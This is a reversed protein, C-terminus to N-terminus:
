GDNDEKIAKKPIVTKVQVTKYGSIRSAMYRAFGDGDCLAYVCSGSGTMNVGCPSFELLKAYAAAVDGCLVRAAPFLSNSLNSGLKQRDGSILSATAQATSPRIRVNLSDYKSYCEATSVGSKPFLLLFDLRDSCAVPKVECGRGSIVAYGGTLMYGTDSGCSDAIGKLAAFDDINYVAALANLVAAADASSGGLGAGMPINKDVTIDCGQTQFREVFRRAAIYANNKEPPIGESDMGRMIINVAGDRRSRVTVIDFLDVTSVLSEIQHYGDSIGVIDLTLNIKAYAKVRCKSVIFNYCVNQKKVITKRSTTCLKKTLLIPKVRCIRPM